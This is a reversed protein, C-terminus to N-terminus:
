LLRGSRNSIIKDIPPLIIKVCVFAMFLTILIPIVLFCERVLGLKEMKWIIAYGINQHLLYWAYSYSGLRGLVYAKHNNCFFKEVPNSLLIVLIATLALGYAPHGFSLIMLPLNILVLLLIKRDHNAKYIAFLYGGFFPSLRNLFLVAGVHAFYSKEYSFLYLVLIFFVFFIWKKHVNFFIHVAVLFCAIVLASMYWHASDVFVYGPHAPFFLNVLLNLFTVDSRNPLYFLKLFVFSIIVCCFYTPYLRLLKKAFFKIASRLGGNSMRECQRGVFFGSIAFFVAVAALGGNEFNLAYPQVHGYLVDYRTTYHFLVVWICLLVRYIEIGNNKM